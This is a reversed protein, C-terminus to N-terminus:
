KMNQQKVIYDAWLITFYESKSGDLNVHLSKITLGCKKYKIQGGSIVCGGSKHLSPSDKGLHHLM